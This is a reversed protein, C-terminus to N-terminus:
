NATKPEVAMDKRFVFSDAGWADSWDYPGATPVAHAIEGADTLAMAPFVPQPTPLITADKM